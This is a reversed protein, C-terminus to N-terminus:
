FIRHNGRMAALYNWLAIREKKKATRVEELSVPELPQLHALSGPEISNTLERDELELFREQIEIHHQRAEEYINTLRTIEQVQELESL